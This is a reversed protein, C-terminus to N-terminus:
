APAVTLAHGDGAYRLVEGAVPGRPARGIWPGRPAVLEGGDGWRASGHSVSPARRRRPPRAILGLCLLGLFSASFGVVYARRARAAAAVVDPPVSVMVPMASRRRARQPGGTREQSSPAFQRLRLMWVLGQTPSYVPGRAVLSAGA